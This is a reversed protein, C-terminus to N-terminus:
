KKGVKMASIEKRYLQSLKVVEYTIEGDQKDVLKLLSVSHHFFPLVEKLVKEVTLAGGIFTYGKKFAEPDDTIAVEMCQTEFHGNMVGSRSSWPGRVTIPKGNAIIQWEAGCYGGDNKTGSWALFAVYGEKEALYLNYIVTGYNAQKVKYNLDKHEPIKDVLVQLEPDNCYWENWNIRADLIKM